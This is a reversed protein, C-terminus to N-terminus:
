SRKMKLKQPFNDEKPTVIFMMHYDEVLKAKGTRPDVVENTDWWREIFTDISFIRDQSVFDKYPDVIILERRELDVFPIVSYHGYDDEEDEDEDEETGFVGQWEVGVPYKHATILEVLEEFKANKKYWFQATPALRQVGLALQDVRMGHIEIRDTVEGAEAVEEQTVFIGLHGLLMQIVAPGCHAESIQCIRNVQFSYLPNNSESPM